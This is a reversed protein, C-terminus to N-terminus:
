REDRRASRVVLATTNIDLVDEVEVDLGAGYLHRCGAHGHQRAGQSVPADTGDRPLSDQGTVGHLVDQAEHVAAPHVVVTALEGELHPWSINKLGSINKWTPSGALDPTLPITIRTMGLM